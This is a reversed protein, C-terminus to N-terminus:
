IQTLAQLEADALRKPYYALKRIHGCWIFPSGGAVQVFGVRVQNISPYINSSSSSVAVAGNASVSTNAADFSVAVKNSQGIPVISGAIATARNASASRYSAELAGGDTSRRYAIGRTNAGDNLWFPGSNNGGIENSEAYFSGINNESYWSSFNAGTMSAADASRTVQSAVTPIYSTPFAGAELQAGWLLVTTALTNVEGRVATSSTVIVVSPGAATLSPTSVICRYWGNGVPVISATQNSGSSGVTGSSLDFNAWPAVDSDFLIQIFNNTGAKAYVSFTRASGASVVQNIRHLNSTGNAVFTDATVTGDPATSTNATITSAFKVWAANDFEESRLLLNTRQEEILLGLSEGTVPNHDLRLVNNEYTQLVPVYNTIPQDTTPTYATVASRQELQAGWAGFTSATDGPGTRRIIVFTTAGAALTATVSVRQWDGTFTVQTPNGIGGLEIRTTEGATGKLFVSATYEGAAVTLNQTLRAVNEPLNITDATQTGDPATQDNATVTANTSKVWAANNFEESRIALNEEAKATTVGNYARATSARAATIRPDIGKSNVFDLLLSPKISPYLNRISM